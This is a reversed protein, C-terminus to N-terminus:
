LVGGFIALGLAVWVLRGHWSPDMMYKRFAEWGYGAAFVLFWQLIELEYLGALNQSGWLIFGVPLLFIPTLIHRFTGKWNFDFAALGLWGLILFAFFGRTIFVELFDDSVPRFYIWGGSLLFLAGGGVFVLLVLFLLFVILGRKALLGSGVKRFYGWGGLVFFLAVAMALAFWGVFLFVTPWGENTFIAWAPPFYIWGRFVLFLVLGAAVGGWRPWAANPFRRFPVTVFALPLLFSFKFLWILAAWLVALPPFLKKGDPLMLIFTEAALFIALWAWYRYEPIACLDWQFRSVALWSLPFMGLFYFGKLRALGYLLAAEGLLLLGKLFIVGSLPVGKSGHAFQEWGWLGVALAFWIWNLYPIFSDWLHKPPTKKIKM